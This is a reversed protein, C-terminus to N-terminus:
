GHYLLYLWRRSNHVICGRLVVYGLLLLWGWHSLVRWVGTRVGSLKVVENGGWVAAFAKSALSAFVAVADGRRTLLLLRLALLVVVQLLVYINLVFSWGGLM